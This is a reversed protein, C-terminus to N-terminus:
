ESRADYGRLLETMAGADIVPRLLERRSEDALVLRLSAACSEALEALIKLKDSSSRLSSAQLFSEVMDLAEVAGEQSIIKLLRETWVPLSLTLWCYACPCEDAVRKTEEITLAELCKGLERVWAVKQRNPYAKSLRLPIKLSTISGLWMWKCVMSVRQESSMVEFPRNMEERIQRFWTKEQRQFCYSIGLSCLLIMLPEFFLFDPLIWGILFYYWSLFSSSLLLSHIAVIGMTACAIGYFIRECNGLVVVLYLRALHRQLQEKTTTSLNKNIKILHQWYSLANKYNQQLKFWVRGEILLWLFLSFGLVFATAHLHLHAVALHLRFPMTAGIILGSATVQSLESMTIITSGPKKNM